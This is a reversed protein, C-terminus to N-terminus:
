GLHLAERGLVERGQPAPVDLRHGERQEEVVNRPSPLVKWSDNETTLRDYSANVNLSNQSSPQQAPDMSNKNGSSEVGAFKVCKTASAAATATSASSASGVPGVVAATVIAVAVPLLVRLPKRVRETRESLTDALGGDAQRM